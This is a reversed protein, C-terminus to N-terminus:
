DADVVRKWRFTGFRATAQLTDGDIHVDAPPPVDCTQEPPCPVQRLRYEGDEFRITVPVAFHVNTPPEVDSFWRYHSQWSGDGDADIILTDALLSIHLTPDDIIVTPLDAGNVSVVAYRGPVLDARSPAHPERCGALAFAVVAFASASRPLHRM